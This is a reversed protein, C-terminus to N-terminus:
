RNESRCLTGQLRENSGEHHKLNVHQLRHRFFRRRLQQPSNIRGACGRHLNSYRVEQLLNHERTNQAVPHSGSSM